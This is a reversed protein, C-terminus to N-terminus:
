RRADKKSHRSFFGYKTLITITIRWFNNTYKPSLRFIQWKNIDIHSVVRNAIISCGYFFMANNCQKLQM